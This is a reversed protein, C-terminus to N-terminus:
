SVETTIVNNRLFDLDEQIEVLKMSSKALNNTLLESAEEYSYELMVNAGLWLCVRDEPLIQAKVYLNDALSFHATGSCVCGHQCFIAYVRLPANSYHLTAKIQSAKM